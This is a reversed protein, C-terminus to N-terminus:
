FPYGPRRVPSRSQYPTTFDQTEGALSTELRGNDGAALAAILSTKGAQSRGFFGLAPLDSYGERWERAQNHLRRLQLLLRDAEMDLRPASRRSQALWDCLGDIGQMAAQLPDPRRQHSSPKM